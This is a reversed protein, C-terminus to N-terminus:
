KWAPSSLIEHNALQGRGRQEDCQNKTGDTEEYNPTGGAPLAWELLSRRRRFVLAASVDDNSIRAAPDVDLGM